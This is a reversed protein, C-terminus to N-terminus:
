GHDHQKRTTSGTPIKPHDHTPVTPHDTRFPSTGFLLRGGPQSTTLAYLLTAPRAVPHTSRAPEPPDHDYVRFVDYGEDTVPRCTM